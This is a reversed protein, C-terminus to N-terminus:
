EPNTENHQNQKKWEKYNKLTEQQSKVDDMEELIVEIDPKIHQDPLSYFILDEDNVYVSIDFNLDSKVIEQMIDSIEKAYEEDTKRDNLYLYVEIEYERKELYEEISEKGNWKQPLQIVKYKM